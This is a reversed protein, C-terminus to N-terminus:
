MRKYVHKLFIWDYKNASAKELLSFLGSDGVSVCGINKFDKTFPNM